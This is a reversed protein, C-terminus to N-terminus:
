RARWAAGSFHARLTDVFLRVRRPVFRGHPHLAYIHLPEPEYTTLLAELRGDRLEEAVVFEPMLVLGLEALAADRLSLSSNVSLTARVEVALPGEPGRLLWTTPSFTGPNILCRHKALDAPRRPRGERKLYGPAACLVRRARALKVAVLSTDAPHATMRLAVDFGEEVLDVMRDNLLLEVRVDPWARAYATLPASMHLLGFSFPATVRLNGRVAAEREAVRAEAEAVEDLIRGCRAYYERGAETLALRRTTRHLLRAGLREELAAVQKSASAVSINLARAAGSYSGAEVVRRFVSMASLQDM